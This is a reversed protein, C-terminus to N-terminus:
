ELEGANLGQWYLSQQQGPSHQLSCQSKERMCMRDGTREKWRSALLKLMLGYHTCLNLSDGLIRGGEALVEVLLCIFLLSLSMIRWHSGVCSCPWNPKNCLLVLSSPVVASLEVYAEVTTPSHAAGSERRSWVTNNVTWPLKPHYTHTFNAQMHTHSILPASLWICVATCLLCGAKPWVVWAWCWM